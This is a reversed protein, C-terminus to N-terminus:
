KKRGYAEPHDKRWSRNESASRVRLNGPSNGGGQDLMRKHDVEKGDGVHVLGAKEAARRAAKRETGKAVVEPRKQYEAMYALKAKSTKTM